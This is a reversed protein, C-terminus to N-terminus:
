GGWGEEGEVTEVVPVDEVIEREREEVRKREEDKGEEAGTDTDKEKGGAAEEKKEEPGMGQDPSSKRTGGRRGGDGAGAGGGAASAYSRHRVPCDRWLHTSSGCGHCAKPEDCDKAEHEASGCFRCKKTSCSALNHGYAMCRRCFPPQRAYFLTGRDAGLSFMAPPHLYGDLGYPDERLLAQFGRRGNWFGLSDRQLRGSSVNDMFRELYARVDEETVHPNYMNVTVLRFSNKGLSTVEYNCMPKTKGAERAMKLVEDHKQEKHFTVDFSVESPNGQLCKVDKVELKLMGILITRAFTERGFPEMGKCRWAFRLMNAIGFGSMKPTSNRAM